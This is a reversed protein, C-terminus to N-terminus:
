KSNKTVKNIISHKIIGGDYILKLLILIFISKRDNKIKKIFYKFNNAYEQKQSFRDVFHVLHYNIISNDRIIKVGIKSLRYGLDVDELGWGSYNEDFLGVEVLDKRQVSSNGTTFTVRELHQGLFKRGIKKLLDNPEKFARREMEKYDSCTIGRSNFDQLEEESYNINLREGIIAYRGEKHRQICRSVYDPAPIRDDDLFIIIEGKAQRIGSNRAKARGQNRKLIISIPKYNFELKNFSDITEQMCGDFIVLVEVMDNVQPELAKLVLSLRSLKDKTPIIISADM